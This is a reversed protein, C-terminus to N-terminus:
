LWVLICSSNNADLNPSGLAMLFCTECPPESSISLRRLHYASFLVCGALTEFLEATGVCLSSTHHTLPGAANMNWHEADQLIMGMTILLFHSSVHLELYFIREEHGATGKTQLLNFGDLTKGM